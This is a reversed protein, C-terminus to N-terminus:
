PPPLVQPLTSVGSPEGAVGCAVGDAEAPGKPTRHKQVRSLGRPRHKEARALEPANLVRPRKRGNM